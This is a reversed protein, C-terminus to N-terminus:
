KDMLDYLRAKLKTVENELSASKAREETLRETETLYAEKWEERDDRVRDIFEVKLNIEANLAEIKRVADDTVARLQDTLNRARQEAEMLNQASSDIVSFIDPPFDNDLQTQVWEILAPSFLDALYTGPEFITAVKRLAAMEDAKSASSPVPKINM